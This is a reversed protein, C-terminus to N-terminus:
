KQLGQFEALLDDVTVNGYDQNLADKATAWLGRAAVPGRQALDNLRLRGYVGIDPVQRLQDAM